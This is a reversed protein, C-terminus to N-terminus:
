TSGEHHIPHQMMMLPTAKPSETTSYFTPTSIKKVDLYITLAFQSRGTSHRNIPKCIHRKREGLGSGNKVSSLSKAHQVLDQVPAHNKLSYISHMSQPVSDQLGEIFNKIVVYDSTVRNSRLAKTSFVGDYEVITKNFM